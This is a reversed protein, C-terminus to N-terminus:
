ALHNPYALYPVTVGRGGHAIGRGHVGFHGIHGFFITNDVRRGLQTTKLISNDPRQRSHGLNQNLLWRYGYFIGNLHTYLLAYLWRIHCDRCQCCPIGILHAGEVKYRPTPTVIAETAGQVAM